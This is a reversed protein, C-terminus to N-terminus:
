RGASRSARGARTKLGAAREEREGVRVVLDVLFAVQRESLRAPLRGAAKERDLWQGPTLMSNGGAKFKYTVTPPSGPQASLNRDAARKTAMTTSVCLM